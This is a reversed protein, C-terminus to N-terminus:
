APQPRNPNIKERRIIKAKAENGDPWRVFLDDGVVRAPVWAMRLASFSDDGTLPPDYVATYLTGDLMLSVERIVPPPPTHPFNGEGGVVYTIHIPQPLPPDVNFLIACGFDKSVEGMCKKVKPGPILGDDDLHLEITYEQQALALGLMFLAFATHKLM